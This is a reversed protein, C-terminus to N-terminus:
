APRGCASFSGSAATTPSGVHGSLQYKWRLLLYGILGIATVGIWAAYVRAPSLWAPMNPYDALYEANHVHHFLSAGAYALLFPLLVTMRIESRKNQM